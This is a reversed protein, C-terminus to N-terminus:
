LAQLHTQLVELGGAPYEVGARSRYGEQVHIALEVRKRAHEDYIALGAADRVILLPAALFDLDLERLLPGFDFM